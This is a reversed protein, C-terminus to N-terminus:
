QTSCLLKVINKNDALLFNSDLYRNIKSDCTLYKFDDICYLLNMYDIYDNEHVKKKKGSLFSNLYKKLAEKFLVLKDTNFNNLDYNPNNRKLYSNIHPKIFGDEIFSELCINNKAKHERRMWNIMDEMNTVWTSVSEKRGQIMDDYNTYSLKDKTEANVFDEIIKIISIKQAQYSHDIYSTDNALLIQQADNQSLCRKSYKSIAYFAHKLSDFDSNMQKSSILEVITLNTIYLDCDKLESLTDTYGKAGLRYWVNSDCIVKIKNM